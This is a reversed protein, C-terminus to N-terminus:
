LHNTHISVAGSKARTTGLACFAYDCNRLAADKSVQLNDYDVAQIHVTAIENYEVPVEM